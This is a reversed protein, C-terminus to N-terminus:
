TEELSFANLQVTRKNSTQSSKTTHNNLKCSSGKGRGKEKQKLRRMQSCRLMRCRRSKTLMFSSSRRWISRLRPSPSYLSMMSTHPKMGQTSIVMRDSPSVQPISSYHLLNDHWQFYLYWAFLCVPLCFLSNVQPTGQPFSNYRYYYYCHALDQDFTKLKHICRFEHICLIILGDWIIVLTKDELQFAYTFSKILFWSNKQFPTATTRIFYSCQTKKCWRMNVAMQM